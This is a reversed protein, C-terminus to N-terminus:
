NNATQQIINQRVFPAVAYDPFGQGKTHFWAVLHVLNTSQTTQALKSFKSFVNAKTYNGVRDALQTFTYRTNFSKM